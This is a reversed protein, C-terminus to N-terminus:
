GLHLGAVEVVVGIGSRGHCIGNEGKEIRNDEITGEDGKTGDVDIHFVQFVEDVKTIWIACEEEIRNVVVKM